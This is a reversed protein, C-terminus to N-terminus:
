ITPLINQNIHFFNDPDYKSKIAALRAYNDRYTAKVRDQGEDMLFNVYAAGASHPHLALWYDKTWGMTKQNNASDPDAGIIVHVWNADRYSFATDNAGVRQAAGNIPYLHTTSLPPRCSRATSSTCPSQRTPYSASLIPAGTSSCAPRPAPM